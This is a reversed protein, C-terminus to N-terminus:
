VPLFRRSNPRSAPHSSSASAEQPEARGRPRRFRNRTSRTRLIAVLERTDRHPQCAAMMQALSPNEARLKKM